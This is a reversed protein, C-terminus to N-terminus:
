ARSSKIRLLCCITGKDLGLYQPHTIEALGQKAKVADVFDDRGTFYHFIELSIDLSWVTHPDSMLTSSFTQERVCSSTLFTFLHQDTTSVFM